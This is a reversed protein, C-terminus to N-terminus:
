PNRFDKDKETLALPGKITVHKKTLLEVNWYLHDADCSLYLKTPALDTGKTKNMISDLISKIKPSKDIKQKDPFEIPKEILEKLLLGCFGRWIQKSEFLSLNIGFTKYLSIFEHRLEKLSIIECIRDCANVNSGHKDHELFADAIGELIRYGNISESLKIHLCWNCYLNLTQHKNKFNNKEILQRTKSMLNVLDSSSLGNQQLLRKIDDQPESM